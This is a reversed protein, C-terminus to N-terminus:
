DLMLHQQCISNDYEKMCKSYLTCSEKNNGDKICKDYISLTPVPIPTPSENIHKVETPSRFLNMAISQGAGLGFGQMVNSFFGPQQITHNIQQPQVQAQPKEVTQKQQTKKPSIFSRSSSSSVRGM